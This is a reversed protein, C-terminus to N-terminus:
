ETDPLKIEDTSNTLSDVEDDLNDDTQLGFLRWYIQYWERSNIYEIVDKKIRGRKEEMYAKHLDGCMPKFKYEIDKAPMEKRVFVTQYVDFLNQTMSVLKDYYSRFLQEYEGSSTEFVSLFQKIKKDNKLRWWLRFLSDNNAENLSIPYHGKLELLSSYSPNRVKSRLGSYMDKVVVGVDFKGQQSILNSTYKQLDDFSGQFPSIVNPVNVTQNYTSQFLNNIVYPPIEIIVDERLKMFETNVTIKNNKILDELIDLNDNRDKLQYVAVLTNQNKIYPSVIRNESHEVNFVFCYKDKINDSIKDWDLNNNNDDFMQQFTMGPNNFYSTGIKRRTSTEFHRIQRESNESEEDVEKQIIKYNFQKLSPNYVLMTGERFEEIVLSRYGEDTTAPISNFMTELKISKTVGLSVISFSAFDFLMHRCLQTILKSKDYSKSGKNYYFQILLKKNDGFIKRELDNESEVSEGYKHIKRKIGYDRYLTYTWYELFNRYSSGDSKTLNDDSLYINLENYLQQYFADIQRSFHSIPPVFPVTNSM